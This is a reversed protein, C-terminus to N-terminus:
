PCRDGEVEIKWRERERERQSVNFQIGHFPPQADRLQRGVAILAGFGRRARERTGRGRRSRALKAASGCGRSAGSLAPGSANRASGIM